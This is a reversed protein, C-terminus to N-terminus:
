FDMIIRVSNAEVDTDLILENYRKDAEEETYRGEQKNIGDQVYEISYRELKEM